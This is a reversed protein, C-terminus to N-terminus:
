VHTGCPWTESLLESAKLGKPIEVLVNQSRHYPYISSIILCMYNRILIKLVRLRLECYLTQPAWKSM